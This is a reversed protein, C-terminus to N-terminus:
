CNLALDSSRNLARLLNAKNICANGNFCSESNLCENGDIRGAEESHRGNLSAFFAVAIMWMKSEDGRRVM